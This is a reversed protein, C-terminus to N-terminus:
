YLVSICSSLYEISEVDFTKEIAEVIDFLDWDENSRKVEVVTSGVENLEVSGNFVILVDSTMDECEKLIIRDIKM